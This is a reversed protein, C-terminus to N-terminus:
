SFSFAPHAALIHGDCNVFPGLGLSRAGAISFAPYDALVLWGAARLWALLARHHGRSHTSVHLRRARGALWGLNGQLM